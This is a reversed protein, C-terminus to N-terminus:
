GRDLAQAADTLLRVMDPRGDSRLPVRPFTRHLLLLLMRHVERLHARRKRVSQLRKKAAEMAQHLMRSLNPFRTFRRVDLLPAYDGSSADGVVPAAAASAAGGADELTLAIPWDHPLPEHVVGSLLRPALAGSASVRRLFRACAMPQTALRGMARSPPACLGYLHSSSAAALAASQQRRFEWQVDLDAEDEVEVGDKDAEQGPRRQSRSRSSSRSSRRAMPRVRVKRHSLRKLTGPM